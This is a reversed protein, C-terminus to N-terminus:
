PILNQKEESTLFPSTNVATDLIAKLIQGLASVFTGLVWLLLLLTGGFILGASAVIGQQDRISLNLNDRVWLVVPAVEEIHKAGMVGLYLLAAGMILGMTKCILGLGNILM